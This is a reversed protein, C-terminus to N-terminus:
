QCSCENIVLENEVIQFVSVRLDLNVVSTALKQTFNRKRSNTRGFTKATLRAIFFGKVRESTKSRWRRNIAVVHRGALARDEALGFDVEIRSVIFRLLNEVLTFVV